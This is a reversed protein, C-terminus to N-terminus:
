FPQKELNANPKVPTAHKPAISKPPKPAHNRSKANGQYRASM